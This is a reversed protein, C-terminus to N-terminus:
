GGTAFAGVGCATQCKGACGNSKHALHSQRALVGGKRLPLPAGQQGMLVCAVAALKRRWVLAGCFFVSCPM